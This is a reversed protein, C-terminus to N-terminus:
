KARRTENKGEERYERGKKEKKWEKEKEEGNERDEEEEKEEEQEGCQRGEPRRAQLLFTQPFHPPHLLRPPPHPPSSPLWRPTTICPTVRTGM